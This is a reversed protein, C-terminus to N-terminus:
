FRTARWTAIDNNLERETEDCWGRGQYKPMIADEMRAHALLAAVLTTTIRTSASTIHALASAFRSSAFAFLRVSRHDGITDGLEVPETATECAPLDITWQAVPRARGQKRQGDKAPQFTCNAMRAQLVLM